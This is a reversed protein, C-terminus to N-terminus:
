AGVELGQPNYGAVDSVPNALSVATKTISFLDTITMGEDLLSKVASTIDTPKVNKELLVKAAKRQAKIDSETFVIQRATQFAMVLAYVALAKSGTGTSILNAADIMRATTDDQMIVTEQGTGIQWEVPYTPPVGIDTLETKNFDTDNLMLNEAQLNEAQLFNTLPKTTFPLEYVELTYEIIRKTKPDRHEVRRVHGAKKLENIAGRVAHVGDPSRKVLDGLRVTWNDPRSLLYALIGKAKWSLVPNEIPRRDMMVFPNDADKITRFITRARTTYTPKEESM